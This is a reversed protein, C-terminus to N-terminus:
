AKNRARKAAAARALAKGVSGKVEEEAPPVAWGPILREDQARFAALLDRSFSGAKGTHHYRWRMAAKREEAYCVSWHTETNEETNWTWAGFGGSTPMDDAPQAQRQKPVAETPPAQRAPQASVLTLTRPHVPTGGRRELAEAHRQPHRVPGEQGEPRAALLFPRVAAFLKAANEPRLDIEYATGEFTMHFRRVEESETGDLDDFVVVRTGM